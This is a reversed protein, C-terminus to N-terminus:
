GNRYIEPRRSGNRPKLGHLINTYPRTQWDKSIAGYSAKPSYLKERTILQGPQWSRKSWPPPSISIVTVQEAVILKDPRTVVIKDSQYRSIYSVHLRQRCETERATNNGHHELAPKVPVCFLSLLARKLLNDIFKVYAPFHGPYKFLTGLELARPPTFQM